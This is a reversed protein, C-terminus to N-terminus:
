LFFCSIILPIFYMSTNIIESREKKCLVLIFYTLLSVTAWILTMPLIISSYQIKNFAFLWSLMLAGAYTKVYVSFIFMGISIKGKKNLIPYEWFHKILHIILFIYYIYFIAAAVPWMIIMDAIVVLVITAILAIFEVIDKKQIYQRLNNMIIQINFHHPM